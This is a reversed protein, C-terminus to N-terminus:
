SWSRQTARSCPGRRRGRALEDGQEVGEAPRVQAQPRRHRGRGARADPDVALAARLAVLERPRRKIPWSRNWRAWASRASRRPDRGPIAEVRAPPPDPSPQAAVAGSTPPHCRRSVPAGSRTGRGPVAVPEVVWISAPLDDLDLLRAPWRGLRGGRHDELLGACSRSARRATPASMRRGGLPADGRREDGHLAAVHRGSPDYLYARGGTMGAGFNAGVPGLVVVTGGTMYECGHPGIGEVVAEAGSNRVAFRM